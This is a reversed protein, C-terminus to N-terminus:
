NMANSPSIARSDGQGDLSLCSRSAAMPPIRSSISVLSACPTVTSHLNNYIIGKKGKSKKLFQIFGITGIGATVILGIVELIDRAAKIEMDESIFSQMHALFGQVLEVSFEFCQSEKDITVLVKVSSAKGANVKQNVLVCLDGLALLASALHNVDMSRDALAPGDYRIRVSYKNVAM